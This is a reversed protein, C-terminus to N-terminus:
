ELNAHNKRIQTESVKLRDRLVQCITDCFLLLTQEFLSAMLQRSVTKVPLHSVPGGPVIVILDVLKKLSPSSSATIFVVTTQYKKALKVINIVGSTKGSGSAAVLLDGNGVAPTVTEGVVYSEKGLHRLRQAFAQLMLMSRGEAVVFIRRSKLLRGLFKESEKESINNLSDSLERLAIKRSKAFNM